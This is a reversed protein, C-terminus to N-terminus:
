EGRLVAKPRALVGASRREAGRRAADSTAQMIHVQDALRRPQM